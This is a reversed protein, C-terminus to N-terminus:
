PKANLQKLLAQCGVVNEGIKIEYALLGGALLRHQSLIAYNQDRHTLDGNACYWKARFTATVDALNINKNLVLGCRSLSVYHYMDTFIKLPMEADLSTPSERYIITLGDAAFFDKHWIKEVAAAEEPYLGASTTPGQPDAPDRMSNHVSLSGSESLDSVLRDTTASAFDKADIWRNFTAFAPIPLSAITDGATAGASVHMPPLSSRYGVWVHEGSRYVATVGYIPEDAVNVIQFESESGGFLFNGDPVVAIAPKERTRGEYFLFKEAQTGNSLYDSHVSRAINIWHDAPLDDGALKMGAPLNKTLSLSYWALQMRPDDPVPVRKTGGLFRPNAKRWAAWDPEKASATMAATRYVNAPPYWASAEGQSFRLEVGVSQQVPWGSGSYFYVVPKARMGSDPPMDKVRVTPLPVPRGPNADTAIFGPLDGNRADTRGTSGASWDFEQVGWEHVTIPQASWMAATTCRSLGGVLVAIILFIRNRNQAHM